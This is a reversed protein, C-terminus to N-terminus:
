VDAMVALRGPGSVFMSFNGGHCILSTPAASQKCRGAVGVLVSVVFVGSLPQGRGVLCRIADPAGADIPKPFVGGSATRDFARGHCVAYIADSTRIRM